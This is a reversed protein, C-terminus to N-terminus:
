VKLSKKVTLSFGLTSWKSEGFKSLPGGSVVSHWQMTDLQPHIAEPQESVEIM